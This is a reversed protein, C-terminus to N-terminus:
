KWKNMLSHFYVLLTVFSNYMDPSVLFGLMGSMLTTVAEFNLTLTLDMKEYVRYIMLKTNRKYTGTLPYAQLNM